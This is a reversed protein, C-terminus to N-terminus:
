RTTVQGNKPGSSCTSRGAIPIPFKKATRIYGWLGMDLQRVNNQCVTAQM